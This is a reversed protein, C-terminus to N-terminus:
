EVTVKVVAVKRQITRLPNLEYSVSVHYEYYGPDLRGTSAQIRNDFCGNHSTKYKGDPVSYYINQNTDHYYRIVTLETLEASCFKIPVYFARNVPRTTVELQTFEFTATDEELQWYLATLLFFLLTVLSLYYFVGTILRQLPFHNNM